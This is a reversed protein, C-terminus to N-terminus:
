FGIEDNFIPKTKTTAAEKPKISLSLYKVGKKSVKSWASIWFDQGAVNLSGAFDRDDPKRKDSRFMAGKNTDDYQM